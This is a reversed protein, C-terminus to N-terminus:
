DLLERYNDFVHHGLQDVDWTLVEECTKAGLRKYGSLAAEPDVADALSASLM